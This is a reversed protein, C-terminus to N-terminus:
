KGGGTESEFGLRAALGGEALAAAYAGVVERVYAKGGALALAGAAALARELWAPGEAQRRLERELAPDGDLGERTAGREAMLIALREEPLKLDLAQIARWIAQHRRDAFLRWTVGPHRAAAGRSDEWDMDALVSSLFEKELQVRDKKREARAKPKKM